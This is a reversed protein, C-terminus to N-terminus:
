IKALNGGCQLDAPRGGLDAVLHLLWDFRLILVVVIRSM